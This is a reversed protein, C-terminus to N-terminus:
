CYVFLVQRAIVQGGAIHSFYVNYFHCLFSPASSESVDELYKAYARGPSGPEPIAFGQQGVWELDVSLGQTRELGTKRFYADAWWCCVGFILIVCGFTCM